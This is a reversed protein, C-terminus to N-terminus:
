PPNPHNHGRSDPPAFVRSIIVIQRIGFVSSWIGLLSFRIGFALCSFGFVLRWVGFVSCWFGTMRLSTLRLRVCDFSGKGASM